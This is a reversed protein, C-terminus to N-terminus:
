SLLSGVLHAYDAALQVYVPDGDHNRMKAMELLQFAQEFRHKVPETAGVGIGYRRGDATVFEFRHAPENDSQRYSLFPPIQLTSCDSFHCLGDAIRTLTAVPM